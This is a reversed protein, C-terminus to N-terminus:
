PTVRRQITATLTGTGDIWESRVEFGGAVIAERLEAWETGFPVVVIASEREQKGVELGNVMVVARGSM